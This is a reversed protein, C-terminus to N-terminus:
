EDKIEKFKVIAKHYTYNNNHDDGLIWMVFDTLEQEKMIKGDIGVTNQCATEDYFVNTDTASTCTSAIWKLYDQHTKHDVVPYKTM